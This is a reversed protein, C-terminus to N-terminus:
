ECVTLVFTDPCDWDSFEYFGSQNLECEIQFKCQREALPFRDIFDDLSDYNFTTSMLNSLVQIKM